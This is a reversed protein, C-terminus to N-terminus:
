VDCCNFTKQMFPPKSADLNISRASSISLNYRARRYIRMPAPSSNEGWAQSMISIAASERKMSFRNRRPTASGCGAAATRAWIFKSPEDSPARLGCSRWPFFPRMLPAHELIQLQGLVVLCLAIRLLGYNTESTAHAADGLDVIVAKFVAGFKSGRLNPISM